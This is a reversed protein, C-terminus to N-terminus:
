HEQEEVVFEAKMKLHYRRVLEERKENCKEQYEEETMDGRMVEKVVRRKCSLLDKVDPWLNVVVLFLNPFLLNGVSFLIMSWGAM